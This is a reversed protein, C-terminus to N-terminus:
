SPEAKGKFATAVKGIANAGFFFGTSFVLLEKANGPVDRGLWTAAVTLAFVLAWATLKRWGIIGNM